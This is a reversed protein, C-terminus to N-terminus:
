KLTAAERVRRLERSAHSIDADAWLFDDEAYHKTWDNYPILKYSIGTYQDFSPGYEANASWHTALVPKGCLLAEHITLGYGEARHLSLYVDCSHQLAAIESHSLDTTVLKINSAGAVLDKLEDLVFQTRRSVRVKMVLVASPDAGFADKWASIHAWPNKRQPCSTIDMIALGMFADRSIGLRARIDEGSDKPAEVRHPRCIVPLKLGERFASACYESPTWIEHVLSEAFRWDEPFIPTEWLWRTVRYAEKLAAPDFLPLAVDYTNPQCMFYINEVPQTIAEPMPQRKRLYPGIDVIFIQSHRSQTFQVDYAAGRALGSNGSFDGVVYAPGSTPQASPSKAFGSTLALLENLRQRRKRSKM